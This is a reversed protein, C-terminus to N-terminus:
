IRGQLRHLGLRPTPLLVGPSLLALQNYDRGNLPLEVIKREDIVSGRGATESELVAAEGRVTVEETVAGVQMSIDLTAAQNVQLTVGSQAFKKFNALTAELTYIGPRIGPIVYRGSSNTTSRLALATNENTVTIVVGRLVAGSSDTVTGALTALESQALVIGPLLALLALVRSGLWGSHPLRDNRM